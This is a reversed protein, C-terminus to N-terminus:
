CRAPQLSEFTLTIPRDGNDSVAARSTHELWSQPAIEISQSADIVVASREDIKGLAPLFGRAEGTM